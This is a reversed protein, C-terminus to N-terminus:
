TMDCHTANFRGGGAMAMSVDDTLLARRRCGHGTLIMCQTLATTMNTM